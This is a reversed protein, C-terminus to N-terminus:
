NRTQEVFTEHLNFRWVLAFSTLAQYFGNLKLKTSIYVFYVAFILPGRRLVLSCHYMLQGRSM